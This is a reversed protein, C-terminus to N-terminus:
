EGGALQGVDVFVEDFASCVNGGGNGGRGRDGVGDGGGEGGAEHGAMVAYESVAEEIGVLEEESVVGVGFGVSVDVVM